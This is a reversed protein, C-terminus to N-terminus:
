SRASMKQSRSSVPVASVQVAPSPMSAIWAMMCTVTGTNVAAPMPVSGASSAPYPGISGSM